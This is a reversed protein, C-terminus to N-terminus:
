YIYISSLLGLEVSALLCSSYLRILLSSDVFLPSYCREVCCCLGSDGVTVGGPTHTLVLYIFEVSPVDEFTLM